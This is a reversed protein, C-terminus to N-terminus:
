HAYACIENQHWLHVIEPYSTCRQYTIHSTKNKTSRQEVQKAIEKMIEARADSPTICLAFLIRMLKESVSPIKRGKEYNAITQVDTDFREALEKQTLKMQKRLFRFEAGTLKRRQTVIHLGIAKHLDDPADITVIRGYDPDDEVSFGNALYVYDLGSATYHLPAGDYPQGMVHFEARESM